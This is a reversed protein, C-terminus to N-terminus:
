YDNWRHPSTTSSVATEGDDEFSRRYKNGKKRKKSPKLHYAEAFLPTDAGYHHPEDFFADDDDATISKTSETSQKMTDFGYHGSQQYKWREPNGILDQPINLKSLASNFEKWGRPNFNKRKRLADNILDVLHTGKVLSGDTIIEGRKNWDIIQRNTRLQGLLREAKKRLTSPVSSIVDHEISSTEQSSQSADVSTASAQPASEATFKMEIPQKRQSDVKLYRNLIHNYLKIKEDESLDNRDLIDKMEKDLSLAAKTIPSPESAATIQQLQDVMDHPVLAMKTAHTMAM